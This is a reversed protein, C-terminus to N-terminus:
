CDKPDLKKVLLNHLREALREKPIPLFDTGYEILRAYLKPGASDDPFGKMSYYSEKILRELLAKVEGKKKGTGLTMEAIIQDLYRSYFKPDISTHGIFQELVISPAISFDPVIKELLNLTYKAATADIARKIEEISINPKLIKQDLLTYIIGKQQEILSIDLAAQSPDSDEKSVFNQPVNTINLYPYSSLIDLFNDEDVAKSLARGLAAVEQVSINNSTGPSVLEAQLEKIFSKKLKSYKLSTMPNGEESLQNLAYSLTSPDALPIRLVQALPTAHREQIVAKLVARNQEYDEMTSPMSLYSLVMEALSSEESLNKYIDGPIFIDSALITELNKEFDVPDKIVQADKFTNNVSNFLNELIGKVPGPLTSTEISKELTKLYEVGVDKDRNTTLLNSLQSVMVLEDVIEKVQEVNDASSKLIIDSQMVNDLTILEGSNIATFDGNKIRAWLDKQYENAATKYAGGLGKLVEVVKSKLEQIRTKETIGNFINEIGSEQMAEEFNSNLGEKTFTYDGSEITLDPGNNDSYSDKVDPQQDVIDSIHTGNANIANLYAIPYQIDQIGADLEIDQSIDSIDALVLSRTKDSTQHETIVPVLKIGYKFSNSAKLIGDLANYVAIQLDAGQLVTSGSKVSVLRVRVADIVAKSLSLFNFNILPPIGKEAAGYIIPNRKVYSITPKNNKDLYTVGSIPDIYYKSWMNPNVIDLIVQMAAQSINPTKTPKTIKLMREMQVSDWLPGGVSAQEVLDRIQSTEPLDALDKRYREIWRLALESLTGAMNIGINQSTLTKLLPSPSSPKHIGGAISVKEMIAPLTLYGADLLIAGRTGSLLGLARDENLTIDKFDDNPDSSYFLVVRGAHPNEENAIIKLKTASTLGRESLTELIKSYSMRKGGKTSVIAGPTLSKNSNYFSSFERASFKSIIKGKTYQSIARKRVRLANKGANTINTFHGLVYMRGNYEAALMMTTYKPEGSDSFARYSYTVYQTPIYKIDQALIGRIITRYDASPSALTYGNEELVQGTYLLSPIGPLIKGSADEAEADFEETYLALIDRSDDLDKMFEVSSVKTDIQETVRDAFETANLTPMDQVPISMLFYLYGMAAEKQIVTTEEANYIDTLIQVRTDKDINGKKEYIIDKTWLPHSKLVSTFLRRLRNNEQIAENATFTTEVLDTNLGGDRQTIILIPNSVEDKQYRVINNQILDYGLPTDKSLVGQEGTFQFQTTNITGTKISYFAEIPLFVKDKNNLRIFARAAIGYKESSIVFKKGLFVNDLVYGKKPLSNLYDYAAIYATHLNLLEFPSTEKVQKLVNAVTATPNILSTKLIKVYKSAIQRESDQVDAVKGSIHYFAKALLNKRDVSNTSDYNTPLVFGKNDKLQAKLINAQNEAFSEGESPLPDADPEVNNEEDQDIGETEEVVEEDDVVEVKDQVDDVKVKRKRNKTTNNKVKQKQVTGKNISLGPETTTITDFAKKQFQRLDNRSEEIQTATLMKEGENYNALMEYDTENIIVSGTRSRGVSTSLSRGNIVTTGIDSGFNTGFAVTDAHVITFDFERGQINNHTFLRVRESYSNGSPDEGKFLQELEPAAEFLSQKTLYKDSAMGITYEENEDLNKLLIEIISNGQLGTISNDALANINGVVPVGLIANYQADYGYQTELKRNNITYSGSQKVVRLIDDITANLTTVKSRESEQIYTATPILFTDFMTVSTKVDDVLTIAGTQDTDGMVLVVLEPLGEQVRNANISKLAANFEKFDLQSTDVKRNQWANAYFKAASMYTAEDIFITSISSLTEDKHDELFTVLNNKHEIGIQPKTTYVKFGAKKVAQALTAVQEDVAASVLISSTTDGLMDHAIRLAMTGVLKTKGSGLRGLIAFINEPIFEDLTNPDAKSNVVLNKLAVRADPNVLFSTAQFAAELQENNAPFEFIRDAVEKSEDLDVYGKYGAIFDSYKISAMSITNIIKTTDLPSLTNSSIGDAILAVKNGFIEHIKDRAVIVKNLIDMVEGDSMSRDRPDQAAYLAKFEPVKDLEDLAEASNLDDLQEHLFYIANITDERLGGISKKFTEKKALSDSVSTGREDLINSLQKSYVELLGRASTSALRSLHLEIDKFEEGFFAEVEEVSKGENQAQEIANLLLKKDELLAQYEIKYESNSRTYSEEILILKDYDKQESATLGQDQKKQLLALRRAPNYLVREFLRNFRTLDQDFKEKYKFSTLKGESMDQRFYGLRTDVKELFKLLALRRDIKTKLEEVEDFQNFTTSGINEKRLADAELIFRQASDILSGEKSLTFKGDEETYDAHLHSLNTDKWEEVERADAILIKLKDYAANEESVGSVAVATEAAVIIKKNLNEVGSIKERKFQGLTPIEIKLKSIGSADTLIDIQDFVGKKIRALIADLDLTYIGNNETIIGESYQEILNALIHQESGVYKSVRILAPFDTIELTDVREKLAEKLSDLGKYQKMLKTRMDETMLIHGDMTLLSNVKETFNLDKNDIIEQNDQQIKEATAHKSKNFDRGENIISLEQKIGELTNLDKHGDLMDFERGAKRTRDAQIINKLYINEGYKGNVINFINDIAEVVQTADEITLKTNADALSKTLTDMAANRVEEPTLEDEVTEEKLTKSNIKNINAYYEANIQDIQRKVEGAQEPTIGAAAKQDIVDYNTKIAQGVNYETVWEKLQPTKQLVSEWAHVGKGRLGLSDLMKMKYNWADEIITRNATNQDIPNDYIEAAEKMTYFDGDAKKHISLASNGFAGKKNLKAINNYMAEENGTLLAYTMMDNIRPNYGGFTFKAMAGGVAGGLGAALVTPILYDSFYNEDRYWAYGKFDEPHDEYDGNYFRYINSANQVIEQAMQESIEQFTETRAAQFIQLGKSADATGSGLKDSVNKAHTRLFDITKSKWTEVERNLSQITKPGMSYRKLLSRNQANLGNKLVQSEAFGEEIWNFVSNIGWLSALGFFWTAGSERATLGLQRGQSGIDGAGFMTMWARTTYAGALGATNPTLGLYSLGGDVAGAGLIGKAGAGVGRAILVQMFIDMILSTAGEASMLSAAEDSQSLKTANLAMSWNNLTNFVSYNEADEGFFIDGLNKGTELFVNDIQSIISNLPTKIIGHLMHSDRYIRTRDEIDWNSVILNKDHDHSYVPVMAGGRSDSYMQDAQYKFAIPAEGNKILKPDAKLDEVDAYSDTYLVDGDPTLVKDTKGERNSYISDFVADGYQIRYDDYMLQNINSSIAMQGQTIGKATTPNYPATVEAQAETLAKDTINKYESRVADYYATFLSSSDSGFEQRMKARVEDNEYYSKMTDLYFGDTSNLKISGSTNYNAMQSMFWDPGLVNSNNTSQITPNKIEGIEKKAETTQINSSQTPMLEKNQTEDAKIETGM